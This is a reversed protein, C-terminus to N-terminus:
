NRSMFFNGLLLINNFLYNYRPDLIFNFINKRGAAKIKVKPTISVTMELQETAGPEEEPEPEPGFDEPLLEDDEEEDEDEDTEYGEPYLEDALVKQSSSEALQAPSVKKQPYGSVGSIGELEIDAKFFLM